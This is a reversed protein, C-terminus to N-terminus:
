KLLVNNGQPGLNYTYVLQAGRHGTTIVFIGTTANLIALM